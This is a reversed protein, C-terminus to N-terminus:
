KPARKVLLQALVTLGLGVCLAAAVEPLPAPSLYVAAPTAGAPSHLCDLLLMAAFAICTGAVIAAGDHPALCRMLAGAVFACLHGGIVSRKRAMRSDPQGFAIVCSGAVPAFWAWGGRSVSLWYALAIVSCFACVARAIVIRPEPEPGRM